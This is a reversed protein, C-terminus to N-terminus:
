ATKKDAFRGGARYTELYSPLILSMGTPSIGLDSLTLNGSGVVNDTKLSEVQDPTLLPRPLLSLFFADIKAVSFPLPVLIRKHGTYKALLEYIQRFTVVEPGGLEYIQGRPDFGGAVPRLAAVLVAQAVDGVYVPQFKTKGGGILPLLPFIQALRAFMNFFNDEPGFIVSPRMITVWPCAAQIAREGERKSAAYRSRAQDVGLASIHIFRVVGERMCAEAMLVPIQNHLDHFRRRRREYLIGLCNVVISAGEIAERVSAPDSYRCLFPVVQGVSGCPKLFYAREPVRTAVKVTYGEAVLRKVIHRGLFGTGGFVTAIKRKASM